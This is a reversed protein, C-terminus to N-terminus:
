ASWSADRVENFAFASISCAGNKQFLSCVNMEHFEDATLNTPDFAFVFSCEQTNEASTHIGWKVSLRRGHALWYGSIRSILVPPMKGCVDPISRLFFPAYGLNETKQIHTFLVGDRNRRM